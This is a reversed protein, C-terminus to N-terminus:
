VYWNGIRNIGQSNAYARFLVLLPKGYYKITSRIAVQDKQRQDDTSVMSMSSSRGNILYQQEYLDYVDEELSRYETPDFVSNTVDGFQRVGSPRSVMKNKGLKKKMRGGNNTNKSRSNTNNSNFTDSEDRESTELITSLSEKEEEWRMSSSPDMPSGRELINEGQVMTDAAGNDLSTVVSQQESEDSVTESTELAQLRRDIDNMQNQLNLKEDDDRSNVLEFQLDRKQRLLKVKKNMNSGVSEGEEGGNAAASGQDKGEEEEREKEKEKNDAEEEEAAKKKTKFARGIITTFRRFSSKSRKQKKKKKKELEIDDPIQVNVKLPNPEEPSPEEEDREYGAADLRAELSQLLQEKQVLLKNIQTVTTENSGASQSAELTERLTKTERRAKSVQQVLSGIDEEKEVEPEIDLVKTFSLTMPRGTSVILERLQDLYKPDPILEGNVHTVRDGIQLDTCDSGQGGEDIEEVCCDHDISVGMSGDTFEWDYTAAM